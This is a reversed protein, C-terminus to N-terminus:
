RILLLTGKLQQITKNSATNYQVFWVYAGAPQEKSNWKGDWGANKDKTEFVLQGFRNYIQLQYTIIDEGFGAKFVDNKADGNPTFATPMYLNCVGQTILVSDTSAGCENSASLIYLGPKTVTYSQTTSGDQWLFNANSISPM